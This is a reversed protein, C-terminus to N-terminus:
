APCTTILRGGASRSSPGDLQEEGYGAEGPRFRLRRIKAAAQQWLLPSPGAKHHAVGEVRLAIDQLQALQQTGRVGESGERKVANGHRRATGHVAM